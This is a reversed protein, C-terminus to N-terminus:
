STIARRIGTLKNMFGLRRSKNSNKRDLTVTCRAKEEPLNLRYRRVSGADSDADEEKSHFRPRRYECPLVCDPLIKTVLGRVGRSAADIAAYELRRNEESTWYHVTAPPPLPQAAPSMPPVDEEPPDVISPFHFFEYYPHPQQSTPITTHRSQFVPRAHTPNASPTSRSTRRSATRSTSTSTSRMNSPRPKRRRSSTTSVSRRHILDEEYGSDTRAMKLAQMKPSPETSHEVSSELLQDPSELPLAQASHFTATDSNITSLSHNRGNGPPPALTNSDNSLM